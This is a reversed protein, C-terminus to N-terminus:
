LTWRVCVRVKAVDKQRLKLKAVAKSCLRPEKEDEEDSDCAGSPAGGHLKRLLALAEADRGPRESDPGAFPLSGPPHRERPGSPAAALQIQGTLSEDLIGAALAPDAAQGRVRASSRLPPTPDGRPAKPAKPRKAAAKRAQALDQIQQAAARVGLELLKAQNRAIQEARRREFESM